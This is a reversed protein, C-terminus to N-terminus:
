PQVKPLSPRRVPTGFTDRHVPGRATPAEYRHRLQVTVLTEPEGGEIGGCRRQKLIQALHSPVDVREDVAALAADLDDRRVFPDHKMNMSM